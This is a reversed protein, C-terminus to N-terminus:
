LSSEPDPRIIVTKGNGDILLDDIDNIRIFAQRRVGHAADRLSRVSIVIDACRAAHLDKGQVASQFLDVCQRLDVIGVADSCILESVNGDHCRVSAQKQKPFALDGAGKLRSFIFGRKGATGKVVAANEIGTSRSSLNVAIINGGAIKLMESRHVTFFEQRKLVDTKHIVPLNEDRRIVTDAVHVPAAKETRDIGIGKVTGNVM